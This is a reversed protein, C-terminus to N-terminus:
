GKNGSWLTMGRRTGSQFEPDPLNPLELLQKRMDGETRKLQSQMADLEKGLLGAKAVLDVRRAPEEKPAPQRTLSGIEKSLANRESRINEVKQLIDRYDGDLRIMEAVAVQDVGRLTMAQRFEEPNDRIWRVNLM